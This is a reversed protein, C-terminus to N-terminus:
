NRKAVLMELFQNLYHISYVVISIAPSIIAFGIFAIVDTREKQEQPIYKLYNFISIMIWTIGITIIINMYYTKDSM